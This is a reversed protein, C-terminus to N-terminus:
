VSTKKNVKVSKREVLVSNVVTKNRDLSESKILRLLNAAAIQGIAKKDTRITTLPPNYYASVSIDDFGIISIEEPVKINMEELYHMAGMAMYDTAVFFASPLTGCSEHIKKMSRYGSELTFDGEALITEDVVLGNEKMSEEFGRKREVGTAFDYLPCGIYGIRHHGNSILYETAHKASHYDDFVVCPINLKKYEQGIILVPIPYNELVKYHNDTFMSAFYLIGDVRKEQFTYFFEVEEDPHFRSNVIMMNYGNSSLVDAISNLAESVAFDSLEAVSLIVGITNTKKQQLERALSNPRYNALRIAEEVRLRTEENVKATNNIVRSVTAISVGSAKAIDKINM